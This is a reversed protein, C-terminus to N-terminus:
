QGDSDTKFRKEVSWLGQVASSLVVVKVRYDTYPTLYTLNQRTSMLQTDMTETNSENSYQIKHSSKQGLAPDNNLNTWQVTASRSRINTVGLETPPAPVGLTWFYSMFMKM